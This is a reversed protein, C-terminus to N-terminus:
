CCFLFLLSCARRSATTACFTTWRPHNSFPTILALPLWGIAVAFTIRRGLNWHEPGILRTVRQFRYFPGGRILSVDYLPPPVEERQHGSAGRATRAINM